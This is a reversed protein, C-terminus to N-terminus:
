CEAGYRRLMEALSNGDLGSEAAKLTIHFPDGETFILRDAFSKRFDKIYRLNASIDDRIQESIYKCCLDLSAM